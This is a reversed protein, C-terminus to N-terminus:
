VAVFPVVMTNTYGCVIVPVTSTTDKDRVVNTSLSSGNTGPVVASVVVVAFLATSVKGAVAFLVAFYM